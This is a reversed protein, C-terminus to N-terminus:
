GGIVIKLKFNCRISKSGDVDTYRDNFKLNGLALYLMSFFGTPLNTKPSGIHSGTLCARDAEFFIVTNDDLGKLKKKLQGVTIDKM